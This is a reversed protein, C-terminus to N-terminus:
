PLDSSHVPGACITPTWFPVACCIAVTVAVLASRSIALPVAVATCLLPGWRQIRGGTPRLALVSARLGSADHQGRRRLEIPHIATGIVRAFGDRDQLGVPGNNNRFGPLSIQDVLSHGSAFQVIGLLAVLGVGIALRSVLTDLRDRSAVGDGAVVVLGAWGCLLILGADASNLQTAGIPRMAAMVYSIGIAFVFIVMAVRVPNLHRIRAPGFGAMWALVWWGCAAAALLGAPAGAAGLPGLVLKSPFALLLVLYCTLLTAGDAAAHTAPTVQPDPQARHVTM